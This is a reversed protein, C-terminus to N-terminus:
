YLSVMGSAFLALLTLFVFFISGGQGLGRRAFLVYVIGLALPILSLAVYFVGSVILNKGIFARAASMVWQFTLVLVYRKGLKLVDEPNMLDPQFLVQLLKVGVLLAGVVSIYFIVAVFTEM